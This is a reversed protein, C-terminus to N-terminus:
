FIPNQSYILILQLTGITFLGFTLWKIWRNFKHTEEAYYLMRKSDNRNSLSLAIELGKPTLSYHTKDEKKKAWIVDLIKHKELTKITWKGVKKGYYYEFIGYYKWLPYGRSFDILIQKIRELTEIERLKDGSKVGELIRVLELGKETEEIM